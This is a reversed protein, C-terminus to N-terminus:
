TANALISYKGHKYSYRNGEMRLSQNLKFEISHTKGKNSCGRGSKGYKIILDNDKLAKGYLAEIMQNFRKKSLFIYIKNFVHIARIGRVVWQWIPSKGLGNHNVLYLSGGFLTCLKEVPEKNVQFAIIFFPNSSVSGEGEIFGAAWAIDTEKLEKLAVKTRYQEQKFRNRFDVEWFRM